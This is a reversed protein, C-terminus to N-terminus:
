FKVRVGFTFSKYMPYVKNDVGLTTSTSGGMSNVEPDWGSYSTWTLLNQSSMYLQLSQVWDVKFLTKPFNYALQINKLRLYSGDEVFRDSVNVTSNLSIKPYKANPNDASWHDYLVEKLMNMGYGYDAAYSVASVNFLDNGYTGQIFIDLQFNKYSMSSSLGYIFDPNPNGIYTKDESTLSGDEYLDKYKIYGDEDYGDEVYGYFRGIPQGERLININDQVAVVSVYGGLIDEGNYLKVVKNKNSSLNVDMNWKFVGTLLKAGINLDFGKNEVKGVNQIVSTYGMSSPLTVTNLLDRTNKIYYDANINVRNDWLGLDIGADFQETTEWKLDGPMQTGPAFSTQLEDSFIAKGSSLDSLTAYASIAQSGTTGWSTRLKLNSIFDVNKLFNEDSIRWSLAASPFYGWKNGENFKSSGDARFSVTAYYKNKYNYNVRALYSLIVSKTYGSSPIGAVDSASLDYTEFNDSLFGSGSGSLSTSLFDQYTFGVVASINHQDRFSDTYSITNESLLSTYQSDSVSASGDSNYYNTTKYNDTRSDRNEIGGSIKVAIEKIPKFELAANILAVNAKTRQSQEKIFNLPNIIDTAIFPYVNSLVTYEGDETYPTITPPAGLAAGILSSGRAGGSSNKRETDLRSFTSSLIARFSKNFEHDVNTRISYRNYDSGDIIGSQNFTSGSIAFKTKKNGGNINLSNTIVPASNFIFDQWDFSKRTSNIESESFYEEGTDNYQQINYLQMYEKANMLDLKRILSQSSYSSEFDISTKGEKGRKTTILVVGNAGRSGYIATASADKLIEISEIDSNNLMTQNNVPFGDIVYLPENSGQISNGGRIRISMTAGPAGTNQMVQVGATKGALAQMVNTSPYSNLTESKVQSISGTLDSKKMTGYGVAVVEEIGISEEQMVVEIETKGAVPIEQTKMGVFSFVLTADAPVKSLSFNGEADTIIGQTTGKVVVTVGPLPVGSLDTVRGFVTITEQQFNNEDVSTLAILRNDIRYTVDTNGFLKKLIKEVSEDKVNISVKRDADIKNAEYIFYFESQNEIAELVNEVTVNSMSLSFRTGQSYSNTAFTQSACILIVILTTKMVMCLKSARIKRLGSILSFYKKKM